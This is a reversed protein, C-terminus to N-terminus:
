PGGRRRRATVLDAVAGGVFMGVVLVLLRPAESWVVLRIAVCAVATVSFCVLAWGVDSREPRGFYGAPWLRRGSM